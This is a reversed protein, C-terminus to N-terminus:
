VAGGVPGGVDPFELRSEDIATELSAADEIWAEMLNGVRADSFEIRSHAPVELVETPGRLAALDRKLGLAAAVRRIDTVFDLVHVRDKGERVRLGRGLQQIFIRRSHTVRQFGIINVDPVDVGENLVDVATILRVAGQRFQTMLVQRDRKTKRSHISEVSAWLPSYRALFDAMREAHSVTRCFVICRPDATQQWVAMLHEAFAEDRQPLFLKQNLESVTYGERSAKQVVDWDINDAFLRYDVQALYGSSMGEAIGMRFSPAGFHTSIDFRDGRWPTATAGVQKQDKLIELLDQLRGTEGLHHTEDIFILSPRYGEMAAALASQITACTVGALSAPKSGHFLTQTPVEKPLHHWLARELQQVLETQHAVVLVDDNPFTQLHDRIVEAGVVTKGLGTAMILLARSREELDALLRALAEAQYPRPTRRSPPDSPIREGLRDLKPATWPDIRLGVRRLDSLRKQAGADLLANTVVVGRDANYRRMAEAVEDVGSRDISGTTTWKNQLVFLQQRLFALVDGGGDGSGDINQIDTFGLHWLLREVALNFRDPGGQLLRQPALFFEAGSM